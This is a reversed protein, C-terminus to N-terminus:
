NGVPSHRYLRFLRQRSGGVPACSLGNRTANGANSEVPFGIWEGSSVRRAHSQRSIGNAPPEFQPSGAERGVLFSARM